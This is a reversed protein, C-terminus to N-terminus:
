QSPAPSYFSGDPVPFDINRSEGPKMGGTLDVQANSLAYHYPDRRLLILNSFDNGGGGDIPIKHHVDYGEPRKGSKKMGQIEEDSIGARKMQAVVDRDGAITKLFRARVSSDFEKRIRDREAPDRKTYTIKKAKVGPFPISKGGVKGVYDRQVTGTQWRKNSAPQSRPANHNGGGWRKGSGRGPGRQAIRVDSKSLRERGPRVHSSYPNPQASALARVQADRGAASAGPVGSYAPSVFLPVLLGWAAISKLLAM